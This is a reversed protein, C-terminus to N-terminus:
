IYLGLGMVGVRFCMILCWLAMGQLIVAGRLETETCERGLGRRPSMGFGIVPKLLIEAKRGSSNDGIGVQQARCPDIIGEGEEEEEAAAEEAEVVVVTAEEILEEEAVAEMVAMIDETVGTVEGVVVRRRSHRSLIL